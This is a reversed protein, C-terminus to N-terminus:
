PLESAGWPGGPAQSFFWARLGSDQVTVTLKGSALISVGPVQDPIDVYGLGSAAFVEESRWVNTDPQEWKHWLHGASAQFM